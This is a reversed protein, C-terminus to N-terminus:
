LMTAERAESEEGGADLIEVDLRSSALLGKAREPWEVITLAEGDADDFDLEHLEDVSTIRYLDFHRVPLRATEYSQLLTFTPSPVEARDDGLLARILFRAFTTKGAGLDGSLTIMDGAAAKTAVIEALLRTRAEDPLPMHWVDTM